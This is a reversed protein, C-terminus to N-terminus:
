IGNWHKERKKWTDLLARHNSAPTEAKVAARLAQELQPDLWDRKTPLDQLLQRVLVNLNSAM